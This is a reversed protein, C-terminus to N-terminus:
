GSPCIVDVHADGQMLKTLMTENTDFTVYTIDINNGTLQKYYEKFDSLKTDYIYDAWNYVVLSDTVVDSPDCAAVSIVLSLLLVICLVLTLIKKM